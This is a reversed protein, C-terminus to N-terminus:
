RKSVKIVRAPQAQAVADFANSALILMSAPEGFRDLITLVYRTM